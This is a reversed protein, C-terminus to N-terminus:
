RMLTLTSLQPHTKALPQSRAPTPGANGSRTACPRASRASAPWRPTTQPSPPSPLTATGWRWDKHPLQTLYGPSGRRAREVLADGRILWGACADALQGGPDAGTISHWTARYAAEAQSRVPEPVSGCGGMWGATGTGTVMPLSLRDRAPLHSPPWIKRRAAALEAAAPESAPAPAPCAPM